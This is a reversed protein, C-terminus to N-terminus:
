SSLLARRLSPHVELSGNYDIFKKKRFRNMFLNVRSRTTGVMKAMVQHSLLPVEVVAPGKGELHAM